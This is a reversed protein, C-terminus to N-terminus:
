THRQDQFKPAKPILWRWSFEFGGSVTELENDSLSSSGQQGAALIEEATVHIGLDQSLKSLEEAAVTPANQCIETVKAQLSPDQNITEILSKCKETSM